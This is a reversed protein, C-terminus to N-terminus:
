VQHLLVGLADKTVGEIADTGLGEYELYRDSYPIALEKAREFSRATIVLYLKEPADLDNPIDQAIVHEGNGSGIEAAFTKGHSFIGENVSTALSFFRYTTM